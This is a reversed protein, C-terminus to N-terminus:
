GYPAETVRVTRLVRELSPQSHGSRVKDERGGQGDGEAAVGPHRAPHLRPGVAAGHPRRCSPLRHRSSSQQRKAEPTHCKESYISM